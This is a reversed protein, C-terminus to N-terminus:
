KSEKATHEVYYREMADRFMPWDAWPIIVRETDTMPRQQVILIGTSTSNRGIKTTGSKDAHQFTRSPENM